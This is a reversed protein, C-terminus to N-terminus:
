PQSVKEAKVTQQASVLVEEGTQRSGELAEYADSLDHGALRRGGPLTGGMYSVSGNQPNVQVAGGPFNVAVPGPVSAPLNPLTVSQQLARGASRLVADITQDLGAHLLRRGINVGGGPFQVHVGGDNVQVGGGPFAVNVSPAPGPGAVQM